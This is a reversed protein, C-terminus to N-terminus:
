RHRAPKSCFPSKSCRWKKAHPSAPWTSQDKMDVGSLTLAINFIRRRRMEPTMEERDIENLCEQAFSNRRESPGNGHKQKWAGADDKRRGYDKDTGQQDQKSTKVGLRAIDENKDTEHQHDQHLKSGVVIGFDSARKIGQRRVEGEDGLPLM